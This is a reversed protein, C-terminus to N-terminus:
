KRDYDSHFIVYFINVSDKINISDYIKTSNYDYRPKHSELSPLTPIEYSTKINANTFKESNIEKKYSDYYRNFHDTDLVLDKTRQIYFIKTRYDEYMFPLNTEKRTNPETQLISNQLM